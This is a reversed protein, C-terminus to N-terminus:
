GKGHGYYSHYDPSYYGYKGYKASARTVVQNLVVSITPSSFERLRQTGTRVAQFPTHDCRIVYVVISAFRALVLADSVALAPASDIIVRDFAQGLKDIVQAFRSSSLMELPNPPIVGAPMVYTNTGKLEHVCESITATGLVFQSLGMADEPLKCVKGISPRRMDADILLVREMQGTAFALNMAVTSKGEGAMSSTVLVTKNSGDMGSLAIGTRVTRMIESFNSHADELFHRLPSDDDKGRTKLKSLQGLMPIALKNQVDDADKITNDLHDVLFALVIGAALAIMLALLVTRKKRPKVSGRPVIAPDVVRALASRMDQSASTEKFRVLFMDYLERNAEVERELSDLEYQKRNVSQVERKAQEMAELMSEENAKAVEYAKQIGDVVTRIRVQLNAKAEKRDAVAAIMKPHQPGYRKRLEAVKSQATAEISKLNQVLPHGLVAPLSEFRSVPQGKLAQVQRFLNEARPRAGRAAVLSGSTVQMQGTALSQVGQADVLEERDRFAQVTRESAEVKQRLGKM